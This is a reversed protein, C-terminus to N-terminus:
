QVVNLFLVINLFKAAEAMDAASFVISNGSLRNVQRLYSLLEAAVTDKLTIEMQVPHALKLAKIETRHQLARRVGDRILQRSKEPHMMTASFFGSSHKVEATQLGGIHDRAEKAAVQDGSLFVVPVGFDGAVAASFVAESAPRGNLKIEFIRKSSMTHALVADADGAGAHYGVLVAADFSSDLGAMTLLPRPWARIVRVRPDLLEVDLNQGDGHSDAVLVDTAGADFAGAVAANVEQTMFRRFQEYERGGPLAQVQWTSVGGIGEMDVSIHVKLKPQAQAGMTILLVIAVSALSRM